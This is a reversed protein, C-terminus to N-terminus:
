QEDADGLIPPHSDIFPKLYTHISHPGANFSILNSNKCIRWDEPLPITPAIKKTVNIVMPAKMKALKTTASKTAFRTHTTQLYRKGYKNTKLAVLFCIGTTTRVYSSAIESCFLCSPFCQLFSLFSAIPFTANVSAVGIRMADFYSCSGNSVGTLKRINGIHIKSSSSYTTKNKM